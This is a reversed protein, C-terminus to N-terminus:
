GIHHDCRAGGIVTLLVRMTAGNTSLMSILRV